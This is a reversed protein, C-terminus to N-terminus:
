LNLMLQAVAMGVGKHSVMEALTSREGTKCYAHFHGFARSFGPWRQRTGLIPLMTIVIHYGIKQRRERLPLFTVVGEVM